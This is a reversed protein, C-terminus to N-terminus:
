RWNASVLEKAKERYPQDDNEGLECLLGEAQEDDDGCQRSARELCDPDFKIEAALGAFCMVIENRIFNPPDSGDDARRRADWPMNPTRGLSTGIPKISVKGSGDSPIQLIERIVEHGAEHIAHNSIRIKKM